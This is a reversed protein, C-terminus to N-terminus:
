FGFRRLEKDDNRWNKRVKVRLKLYVQQGAMTEIEKRATTGIRKLTKGAKGIVIGKQSDREVFLTAAIFVNGLKRQTYEDIRIAIAHPVEDRLHILCAARILDATIEREYLDTVQNEPYFPLGEPIHYIIRQLLKDLNDGRTASVLISDASPLLASFIEEKEIWMDADIRDMKNIALIVKLTSQIETLYDVLIQDEEHPASLSGDVIFLILDADQLVEFAHQNMYNGLKNVPNHLGPTDVFIVQETATTLIGLQSKRTTQPKPSVAAIKQGIYANMLTSKGVNPRGMVAVYGSKHYEKGTTM